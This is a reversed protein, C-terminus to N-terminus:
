AHQKDCSANVKVVYAGAGVAVVRVRLLLVCFFCPPPLAPLVADVVLSLTLVVVDPLLLEAPELETVAFADPSLGAAFLESVVM